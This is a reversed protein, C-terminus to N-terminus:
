SKPIHITSSIISIKEYSIKPIIRAGKISFPTKKQKKKKKKKKKVKKHPLKKQWQDKNRIMRKLIKVSINNIDNEILIKKPCSFLIIYIYLILYPMCKAMKTSPENKKKMKIKKGETKAQIKCMKPFLNKLIKVHILLTNFYNKPSM